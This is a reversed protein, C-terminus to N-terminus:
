NMSYEEFAGCPSPALPLNRRLCRRSIAEWIEKAEGKALRLPPAFSLDPPYRFVGAEGSFHDTGQPQLCFSKRESVRLYAYM